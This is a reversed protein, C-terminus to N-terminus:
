NSVDALCSVSGLLSPMSRCGYHVPALGAIVDVSLAIALFCDSLARICYRFLTM